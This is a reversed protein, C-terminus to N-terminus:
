LKAEVRARDIPEDLRLTEIGLSTAVRLGQGTGGLRGNKTKPFAVVFRCGHIILYNRAHLKRAADSLAGPNPHHEDVSAFADTHWYQLLESTAGRARADQVWAWEYSPWPLCLIVKGNRSLAGEAFAKDAGSCAGTRLTWGQDALYAGIRFCLEWEEESLQRSGIGAYTKM